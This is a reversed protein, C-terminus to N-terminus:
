KAVEVVQWVPPLPQLTGTCGCHGCVGDVQLITILADEYVQGCKDCRYKM